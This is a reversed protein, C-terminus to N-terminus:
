DTEGAGSFSVGALARGVTLTARAVPEADVTAEAAVVAGSATAKEVAVTVVLRDGPRVPRRWRARAAALVFRMGEPAAAGRGVLFLLLTAQAMVELTLVGPFIATDPFHSAFIPEAGTVNKVCVIRDRDVALVRDVLVFPDRHPLLRRIDDFGLVGGAPM